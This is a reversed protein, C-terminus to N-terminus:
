RNTLYYHYDTELSCCKVLLRLTTSTSFTTCETALAVEKVISVPLAATALVKVCVCKAEPVQRRAPITGRHSSAKTPSETVLGSGEKM